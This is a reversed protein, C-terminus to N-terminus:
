LTVCLTNKQTDGAVHLCKCNEAQPMWQQWILWDRYLLFNSVHISLQENAYEALMQVTPYTRKGVHLQNSVLFLLLHNVFDNGTRFHMCSYEAWRWGGHWASSILAVGCYAPLKSIAYHQKCVQALDAETILFCCIIIEQWLTEGVKKNSM